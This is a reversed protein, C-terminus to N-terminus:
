GEARGPTHDPDPYPHDGHPSEEEDEGEAMGPTHGPVEQVAKRPDVWDEDPETRTRRDNQPTPM